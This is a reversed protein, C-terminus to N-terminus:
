PKAKAPAIGRVKVIVEDMDPGVFDLYCSQNNINTRVERRAQTATMSAPVSVTLLMTVLKRKKAM